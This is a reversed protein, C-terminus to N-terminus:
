TRVQDPNAVTHPQWFHYFNFWQYPALLCHAELRRAYAQMTDELRAQREKRPLAIREAFPELYIRYADGHRLCFFLYVPCDLLSALIFPGQAFPAPAGLFEIQSVRSRGSDDAPPTRDGVIVVLEGRDIKGKLLIATDPGLQSVQILNVGFSANAQALTDNFRLAHDTYVVANVVARHEASALARTMELNGLHSGILVAGQGSALLHEFEARNPFDVRRSDFGGMWAALKDLGSQAFALM